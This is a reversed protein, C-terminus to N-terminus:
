RMYDLLSVRSASGVAQLAAQYATQAQTMETIAQAMDANQDANVRKLSALRLDTLRAQEEDVGKQDVGVLSQARVARDFARDLAAMGNQMGTDDSAQVAVILSDIESFIDKVDGGKAIEEGDMGITVSHNKAVDVTVNTNDGQYTWAGAVQAYATSSSEAGSFLFRGRFTTNLDSVLADRLGTLTAAITLRANADATTGRASTAAVKASTIKEVIDSLVTDMIALRSSATDGSKTYSDISAMETRGEIVRMMAAPDDSPAQLKKGSEVQQQARVFQDGAEAAANVGDHITKFTIRM